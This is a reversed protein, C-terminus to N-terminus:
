TFARRRARADFETALQDVRLAEPALYAFVNLLITEGMVVSSPAYVACEVLDDEGDPEWAAASATAIPEPGGAWIRRWWRWKPPQQTYRTTSPRPPASPLSVEATSTGGMREVVRRVDVVLQQLRPDHADGTWGSLDVTPNMGAGGAAPRKGDLTVAVLVGRDRGTAGEDRVWIANVSSASWVVVVCKAKEIEREIVQYFREGAVLSPDWWVTLGERELLRVLPEIKARDERKYSFFVDAMVM